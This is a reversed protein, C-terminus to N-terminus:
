PQDSCELAAAYSVIVWEGPTISSEETFRVARLEEDWSWDEVLSGDARVQISEVVPDSDLIHLLEGEQATISIDAFTQFPGSWDELCLDEIAGDTAAALEMYVAGISVGGCADSTTPVLVSVRLESAEPALARLNSIQQEPTISSNDDDGAIIVIHLQAGERLFAEMCDGEADRALADAAHQALAGSGGGDPADFGSLLLELLEASSHDPTAYAPVTQPCSNQHSIVAANLAVNAQSLTEVLDGLIDQAQETYHGMVGDTNVVFLLDTDIGPAFVFGEDPASGWYAVDELQASISPFLPDNSEFWLEDSRTDDSEITWSPAFVVPITAQEAPGLELAREQDEALSYDEAGILLMEHIELTESGSNGVVVELVQECGLATAETLATEVGIVPATSQGELRLNEVGYNVRIEAAWRGETPPIFTVILDQSSGAALEFVPDAAVQFVLEADGQLAIIEDHGHVAVTQTGANTIRFDAQAFGDELVSISGFDLIAPSVVLADQGTIPRDSTDLHASGIPDCAALGLPLFVAISRPFPHFM